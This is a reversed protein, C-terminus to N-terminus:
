QVSGFGPDASGPPPSLGALECGQHIPGGPFLEYLFRIGGREHFKEDLADRLERPRIGQAELHRAYYEQLARVVEWHSEGPALGSSRAAAVADEKTWGQPANPFAPDSGIGIDAITAM